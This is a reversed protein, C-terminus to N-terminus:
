TTPYLEELQEELTLTSPPMWMGAIYHKRSVMEQEAPTLAEWPRDGQQGHKWPHLEGLSKPTM